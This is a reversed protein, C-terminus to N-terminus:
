MGIGITATNIVAWINTLGITSLGTDASACIDDAYEFDMKQDIQEQARICAAYYELPKKSNLRRKHGPMNNGYFSEAAHACIDSFRIGRFEGTTAADITKEDLKLVADRNKKGDFDEPKFVCQEM